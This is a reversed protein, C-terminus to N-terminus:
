TSMVETPLSTIYSPLHKGTLFQLVTDTFHNCNQDLLHYGDNRFASQSLETLYEKFTIPDVETSGMDLEQLPSGHHTHGPSAYQIGQGYYYEVGHVVVSTHWIGDIKYGLLPLSMNQAMGQSLDYVLAKVPFM